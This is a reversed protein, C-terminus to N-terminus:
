EMTEVEYRPYELLYIRLRERLQEESEGPGRMLGYLEAIGKESLSKTFEAIRRRVADINPNYSESM